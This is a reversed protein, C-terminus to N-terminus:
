ATQQSELCFCAQDGEGTRNLEEAWAAFERLRARSFLGPRPADGSGEAGRLPLGSRYQESAWFQFATSDYRISRVRFGTREALLEMSRRTHLFLHRPADLQVWHVGYTRWAYSDALPIRILVRGGPSLVRRVHRLAGEPDPMHEFVHNLLVLDFSGEVEEIGARRVLPGDPSQLERPAYPDVGVLNTFGVAHLERLLRGDGCGVDLIADAFAVGARQVTAVDAPLGFVRVLVSGLLSRKGFAHRMRKEKLWRVARSQEPPRFSYYDDPYYPSFDRPPDALQLCGCASCEVYLFADGLGFMM